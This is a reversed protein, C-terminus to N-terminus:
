SWSVFIFDKVILIVIEGGRLSQFFIQSIHVQLCDPSRQTPDMMIRVTTLWATAEGCSGKMQLTLGSVSPLEASGRINLDPFHITRPSGPTNATLVVHSWDDVVLGLLSQLFNLNTILLILLSRVFQDLYGRIDVLNNNLRISFWDFRHPINTEM